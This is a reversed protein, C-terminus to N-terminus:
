RPHTHPGLFGLRDHEDELGTHDPTNIRGGLHDLAYRVNDTNCGPILLNDTRFNSHLSGLFTQLDQVGGSYRNPHTVKFQDKPNPSEPDKRRM